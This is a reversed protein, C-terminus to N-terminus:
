ILQKNRYSEWEGGNLHAVYFVHQLFRSHAVMVVEGAELATPLISDVRFVMTVQSSNVDSTTSTIRTSPLYKGTTTAGSSFRPQLVKSRDPSADREDDTVESAFSLDLGSYRPTVRLWNGARRENSTQKQAVIGRTYYPPTVLDRFGKYLATFFYLTSLVCLLTPIGCLGITLVSERSQGSTANGLRTIVASATILSVFALVLFIFTVSLVTVGIPLYYNIRPLGQLPALKSGAAPRRTRTIMTLM